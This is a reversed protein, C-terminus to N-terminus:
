GRLGPPLNVGGPLSTTQAPAPTSPKEAEESVTEVVPSTQEEVPEDKPINIDPRIDAPGRKEKPPKIDERLAQGRDANAWRLGNRDLADGWKRITIVATKGEFTAAFENKDKGQYGFDAGLAGFLEAMSKAAWQNQPKEAVYEQFKAGAYESPETIEFTFTFQPRGQKSDGYTCKDVVARYERTPPLDVDWAGSGGTAEAAKTIDDAHDKQLNGLLEQLSIQSM